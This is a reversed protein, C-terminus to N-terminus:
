KQFLSAVISLIWEIGDWLPRSLLAGGITSFITIKWDHLNSKRKEEIQMKRFALYFNGKDNIKVIECTEKNLLAAKKEALGASVLKALIEMKEGDFLMNRSSLEKLVEMEGKSLAIHDFDIEPM